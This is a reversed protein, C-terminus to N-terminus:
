RQTLPVMWVLTEAMIATDDSPDVFSVAAMDWAKVIRDPLDLALSIVVPSVAVRVADRVIGLVV